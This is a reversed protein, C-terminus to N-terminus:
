PVPLRASRTDRLDRVGVRGVPTMTRYTLLQDPIPFGGMGDGSSGADPKTAQNSGAVGFGTACQSRGDVWVVDTVILCAM